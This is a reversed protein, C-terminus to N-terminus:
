ERGSGGERGGEWKRVCVSEIMRETVDSIWESVSGDGEM